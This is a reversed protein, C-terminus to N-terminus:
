TSVNPRPDDIDFKDDNGALAAASPKAQGNFSPSNNEGVFKGPEADMTVPGISFVPVHQADVVGRDGMDPRGGAIAARAAAEDGPTQAYAATFALTLIVLFLLSFRVSRRM